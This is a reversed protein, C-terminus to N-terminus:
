DDFSAGTNTIVFDVAIFEIARAPKLFIKAYMVNRDVLDPTTTTEDLIVKFDALGLRTKVSQLFPVVQGRFRNWTAPLNQDFLLGNAIRSVEKKVFILLRRVNIRDLASSTSQLTKQGFIVLGETVFSAIPNINAEYLTDRQKSLLQESAQLVPLGANGENLGGRNFGAPAFWVEEAEETYAMVGLAIVSPPVWLERTNETDAIKVWPYYTAGYSSNIGRAKLDKASKIPSTGLREQVSGTCKYEHAPRYVDKLDIIALADARSECTEILKATLGDTTIGPMVAINFETSEPDSILQIARDVSAYAYSNQVTGASLIRNAFPDPQTIDVGDFGGDMTMQFQNFGLRLLQASGSKQSFSLSGAAYSGSKWYATKVNAKTQSDLNSGSLRIDDLSFLSSHETSSNVIGSEQASALGSDLRRVSDVISKDIQSGLNGNSDVTYIAAGFHNSGDIAGSVVLKPGPATLVVTTNNATFIKRIMADNDVLNGNPLAFDTGSVEAHTVRKPRISGLFGFPILSPDILGQDVDLNMDVRINTSRNTYNGYAKNRKETASWQLFQDGIQRAVYNQSNPNLNCGIFSEIVELRGGFNKRVVVSFSGYPDTDGTEPQRIDEIAISLEKSAQEGENVAILRFLKQKDEVKFQASADGQHQSIVWGTRAATAESSFNRFSDSRLKVIYGGDIDSAVNNEFTEGLWIKGDAKSSVSAVTANTAVPNTPIVKRIFHQSGQTFNFQKRVENNGNDSMVLTFQNASGTKIATGDLSADTSDITANDVARFGELGIKINSDNAYFVAALEHTQSTSALNSGSKYTFLGYSVAADWGVEGADTANDGRVGLLRVMTVPSQIDAAFYAKAAYHAYAPALLGNGERWVDDGQGGPVPTGFIEVFDQYSNVKVAKMAPGKRARGIIVPGTNGPIKPLESNDIEKLFVGPSVFKFKRAAM